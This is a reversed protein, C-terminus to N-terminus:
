DQHLDIQGREYLQMIATATFLKSISAVRFLTLEPTVHTRKELSALGYGKMFMVRGNKVLVFVAGPTRNVAMRRAFVQDVFAELEAPNSPGGQSAACLEKVTWFAFALAPLSRTMSPSMKDSIVCRMLRPKVIGSRYHDTLFVSLGQFSRP